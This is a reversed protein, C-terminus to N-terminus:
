LNVFPDGLFLLELGAIECIMIGVALAGVSLGDSAHGPLWEPATNWSRMWYYLLACGFPGLIM